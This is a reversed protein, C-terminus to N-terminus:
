MWMQIAAQCFYTLLYPLTTSSLPRPLDLGPVSYLSVPIIPSIKSSPVKSSIFLMTSAMKRFRSTSSTKRKANFFELFDAFYNITVNIRFSVRRKNIQQFFSCVNKKASFAGALSIALIVPTRSKWMLLKRPSLTYMVRPTFVGCGLAPSRSIKSEYEPSVLGTM